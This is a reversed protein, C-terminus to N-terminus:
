GSQPNWDRKHPTIPAGVHSQKDPNPARAPVSYAALEKKLALLNVLHAVAVRDADPNLPADLGTPTDVDVLEEIGERIKEEVIERATKLRQRDLDMTM